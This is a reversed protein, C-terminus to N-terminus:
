LCEANDRRFFDTERKEIHIYIYFAVACVSFFSDPLAPLWPCHQVQQRQGNGRQGGNQCRGWYCKRSFYCCTCAGNDTFFFLSLSASEVVCSEQRLRTFIYLKVRRERMTRFRTKLSTIVRGRNSSQDAVSPLLIGRTSGRGSHSVSSYTLESSGGEEKEERRKLFGDSRLRVRNLECGLKQLVDRNRLGTITLFVFVFNKKQRLNLLKEGLFLQMLCHPYNTLRWAAKKFKPECRCHCFFFFFPRKVLKLRLLPSNHDKM